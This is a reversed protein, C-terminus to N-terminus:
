IAIVRALYDRLSLADLDGAVCLASRAGDPWRWLRVLPGACSEVFAVLQTESEHEHTGDVLVSCAAGEEAEEVVYGEERLFAITKQSCERGVGVFPRPGKDIVITRDDLIEYDDSWPRTNFASSLGRSLLTGRPPCEFEIRVTPGDAVVEAKFASRDQWWSAVDRLQTIWVPPRLLAAEELVARFASKCVEFTEPHFLPAFLEGRRHSERLIATWADTIGIEGANLGDYLQLDDPLSAPIEVLDGEFRPRSIVDDSSAAAYFGRLAEFVSTGARSADGRGAEWWIAVNSSYAFMDAPVAELVEASCSLYPCRFGDFPVEAARFADGARRFQRSAEAKSLGTFDVHDYGHVAFEVGTRHLERCFSANKRVVAGPTAFTPGSGYERMLEACEIARRKARKTTVGYRQLILFM